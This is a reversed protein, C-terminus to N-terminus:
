GAGARPGTIPAAPPSLAPRGGTYRSPLRGLGHWSDRRRRHAGLGRTSPHRRAAIGPRERRLKWARTRGPGQDPDEPGARLPTTPDAPWTRLLRVGLERRAPDARRAALDAHAKPSSRRRPAPEQHPPATKRNAIRFLHVPRKSPSARRIRRNQGCSSASCNDLFEAKRRPSAALVKIYTRDSYHLFGLTPHPFPVRSLLLRALRCSSPFLGAAVFSMMMRLRVEWTLVGALHSAVEGRGDLLRAGRNDERFRCL